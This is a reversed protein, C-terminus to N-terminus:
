AEPHRPASHGSEGPDSQCATDPSSNNESQSKSAILAKELQKTYYDIVKDLQEDTLKRPDGDWDVLNINRPPAFEKVSQRLIEMLEQCLPRNLEEREEFIRDVGSGIVFTKRVVLGAEGGGKVRHSILRMLRDFLDQLIAVRGDETLVSLTEQPCARHERAARILASVRNAINPKALLQYAEAQAALPPYGAEAYASEISVGVAVRQCFKEHKLNKLPGFESQSESM